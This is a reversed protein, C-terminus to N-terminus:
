IKGLAVWLKRSEDYYGTIVDAGPCIPKPSHRTWHLGDPSVMTNYGRWEEPEQIYCIMKYRKGPDSEERDKTVSALHTPNRQSSRPRMRIPYFDMGILGCLGNLPRWNGPSTM